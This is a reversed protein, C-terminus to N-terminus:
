AITRTEVMKDIWAMRALACFEVRKKASLCSFGAVRASLYSHVTSAEELSDNIASTLQNYMTMAVVSDHSKEIDFKESIAYELWVCIYSHGTAREIKPKCGELLEIHMDDLIM